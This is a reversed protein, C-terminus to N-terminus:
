SFFFYISADVGARASYMKGWVEQFLLDNGAWIELSQVFLGVVSRCPKEKIVVTYFYDKSSRRDRTKVVYKVFLLSSTSFVIKLMIQGNTPFLCFFFVYKFFLFWYFNLCILCYFKGIDYLSIGQSGHTIPRNHCANEFIYLQLNILILFCQM